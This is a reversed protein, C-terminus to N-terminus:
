LIIGRISVLFFHSVHQWMCEAETGGYDVVMSAQEEALAALKWGLDLAERQDKSLEM